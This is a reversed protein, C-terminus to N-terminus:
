KPPEGLIIFRTPHPCELCISEIQSVVENWKLGGLGCGIKPIAVYDWGHQHCRQTLRILGEKVWRLQSPQKWHDKTAMNVIIPVGLVNYGSPPFWVHLNGPQLKGQACFDRYNYFNALHERKFQLALGAGMVGVTNVPNVLVPISNNVRLTFIDRHPQYEITPKM